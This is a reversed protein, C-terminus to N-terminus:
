KQSIKLTGIRTFPMRSFVDMFKQLNKVERFNTRQFNRRSFYEFCAAMLAYEALYDNFQIAQNLHFLAGAFYTDIFNATEM